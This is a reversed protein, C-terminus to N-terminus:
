IGGEGVCLSKKKRKGNVVRVSEEIEEGGGVRSGGTLKLKTRALEEYIDAGEPQWRRKHFCLMRLCCPGSRVLAWRLSDRHLIFLESSAGGGRLLKHPTACKDASKVCM